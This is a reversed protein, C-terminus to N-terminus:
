KNVKNNRDMFSDVEEIWKDPYQKLYSEHKSNDFFVVAKDKATVNNYISLAEERSIYQDKGGFLLLTPTQVDKIDDKPNFTFANFKNEVSGWFVLFHSFPFNPIGWREFRADVTGKFTAYPAAPIIGNVPLNYDHQAKIIAVAGMSLGYLYINDFAINNKAYDYVEKVNEAEYYGITTQVGYSEGCGMFDPLLVDYGLNTFAHAERLLDSKESGYGHFVLVLGKSISDTKLSWAALKEKGEKSPIQISEFEGTPQKKARPKENKIGFLAMEIKDLATPTNPVKYNEVFHTFRYAHFGSGINLLIFVFIIAYLVIRVFSTFKSRRKDTNRHKIWATM